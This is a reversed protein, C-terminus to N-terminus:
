VLNRELELFAEDCFEEDDNKEEFLVYSKMTSVLSHQNFFHSMVYDVGEEHISRLNNKFFMSKYPPSTIIEYSPFYDVYDYQRSLQDAIARLISKSAMTSVLVHRDEATAILPVPSVTLLLKAKPNCEKLAKLFSEMEVLITAYDLNIFEHQNPNFTGATVGPCIPYSASSAKNAWTETLGMTYVLVDVTEFMQKVQQLHQKQEELMENATDYGNGCLNPRFPDIYRGNKNQWVENFQLKGFSRLFLQLLQRSTYVNGYRASYLGYGLAKAKTASLGDPKPEVDMYNFGNRNLRKGIHQAFCSGCTAISDTESISFKKRYLETIALPYPQAVARKWFQRDPFDSYPSDNQTYIRNFPVIGEGASFNNKELFNKAIISFEDYGFKNFHNINVENSYHNRTIYLPTSLFNWQHRLFSTIKSRKVRKERGTKDLDEEGNIPYQFFLLKIKPNISKFANYLDNYNQGIQDDRIIGDNKFPLGFKSLDLNSITHERGRLEISGATRELDYQNDFLIFDAYTLKELFTQLSSITNQSIINRYRKIQGDSLGKPLLNILSEADDNTLSFGANGCIADILIDSRVHGLSGIFEYGDKKMRRAIQASLCSGFVLFKM